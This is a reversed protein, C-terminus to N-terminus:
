MLVYSLILLHIYATDSDGTRGPLIVAESLLLEQNVESVLKPLALGSECSSSSVSAPRIASGNAAKPCHQSEEGSNRHRRSETSVADERPGTPTTIFLSFFAPM